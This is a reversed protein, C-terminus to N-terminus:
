RAFFASTDMFPVGARAAAKRDSLADGVFVTASFGIRFHRMIDLLM